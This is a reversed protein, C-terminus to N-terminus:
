DTRGIWQNSARLFFTNGGGDLVRVIVDVYVSPGWKPGDRAVREYRNPKLPNPQRPEDTFFSKWVQGSCVIWIADSSISQPFSATDATEIYVLAILPKGDPPSIPMFDRWLYTSLKFVRGQLVLSDPTALLQAIPIDPPLTTGQDTCCCSIISVALIVYRM